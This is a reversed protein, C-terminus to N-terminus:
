DQSSDTRVEKYYLEKDPIVRAMKVMTENSLDGSLIKFLIKKRRNCNSDRCTDFKWKDITTRGTAEKGCFMCKTIVM